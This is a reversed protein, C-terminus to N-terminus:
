SDLTGPVDVPAVVASAVSGIVLSALPGMGRTGMVIAGCRAHAVKAAIRVAASPSRLTMRDLGHSLGATVPPM